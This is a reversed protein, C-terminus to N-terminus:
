SNALRIIAQLLVNAGATLDEQEASEAENHSLGGACPVFIMATPAVRAIHCADHGAGSILRRYAYGCAHAAADLAQVCPEAFHVPPTNAIREIGHELNEGAALTEAASRLEAEMADLVEADPHRMDVTVTVHGPITNHSNPQNDIHGITAVAHPAQALALEQMAVVFRAAGVLADRRGPMPTAGTHADQGTFSVRFWRSGQVGTVVGVKLGERELIPGQEIHPEIFAALRHDGCVREGRAGIQELAQDLTVGDNDTRSLAFDLEYSGAFVGSALMPPAFRAGEENSWVCLELPARTQVDQDSLTEIVELGALVGFVGDFRGGHPQTDLHSGFAVPDRDGDTGPRRAFINGMRDKTIRLGLGECWRCLLARGEADEETLAVRCSGGGPTAGIEAMDMIRRWLRAGDIRLQDTM